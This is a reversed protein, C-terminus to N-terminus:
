SRHIAGRCAHDITPCPAAPMARTDAEDVEDAEDTEDAEGRTENTLVVHAKRESKRVRACERRLTNEAQIRARRPAERDIAVSRSSSLHFVMRSM